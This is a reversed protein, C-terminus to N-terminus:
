AHQDARRDLRRAPRLDRVDREDRGAAECSRRPSTRAHGSIEDLPMAPMAYGDGIRAARRLAADSKGGIFIPTRPPVPEMLLPGFDFFRGHHEVPGKQWLTRM